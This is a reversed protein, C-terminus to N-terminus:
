DESSKKKDLKTLEDQYADYWSSVRLLAFTAALASILAYIFIFYSFAYGVLCLIHFYDGFFLVFFNDDPLKFYYAKAILSLFISSVQLIIFHVFASNVEMYPSTLGDEDKGSILKRFNDDGIAMWMAYGGLSFGLLNPMISLVDNWWLPSAWHPYLLATIFISAWFYPSCFLATLGGYDTWYRKLINQSVSQVV